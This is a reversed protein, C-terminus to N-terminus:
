PSPTLTSRISTVEPHHRITALEPARDITVALGENSTGAMAATRLWGIATEQDGLAGASRAVIAATLTEPHQRFSDAAYHAADDFRGTELLMRALVYENARDGHPLPRPLLDILEGAQEASLGVPPNTPTPQPHSVASFLIRKAKGVKGADLADAAVNWPSAAVQPAKGANLMQFQTILLFGIFLVFGRYGTGVLVVAGVLTAGISFYLMYRHARGPVIADLGYTAIHGGDLPLVPILNLLGIAPGAWWIAAAAPEDFMSSVELPNSGMAILVAVSVAIQIGPGAFSIWAQRARSIPRTPRYSAYGALFGLSISAEAGARRAATAHGLEHILTLVALSGALWYGFPDRYLFVILAMFILFGSQVKVDFGLIRFM